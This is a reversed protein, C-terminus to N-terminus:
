DLAQELQRFLDAASRPRLGRDAALARDFFAQWAPPPSALHASLPDPRGAVVARRWTERSAVPFPLAGALSEYAVIALSWLDWSVDPSDGLLQEPSM